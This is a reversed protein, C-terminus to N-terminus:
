AAAAVGRTGAPAPLEDLRTTAAKHWSVIPTQSAQLRVATDRDILEDGCRECVVGPIVYGLSIGDSEVVITVDRSVLHGGCRHTRGPDM